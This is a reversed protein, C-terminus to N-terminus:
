KRRRRLLALAGLGGLLTTSTEPVATVTFVRDGVVDISPDGTANGTWFGQNGGLNELFVGMAEGGAYSSTSNGAWVFAPATSDLYFAYTTNDALTLNASSFDFSVTTPGTTNGLTVSASALATAGVNWYNANPSAGTNTAYLYATVTSTFTDGVTGVTIESLINSAGLSGTSFSQALYYQNYDGTHTQVTHSSTNYGWNTLENVNSGNSATNQAVVTAANAHSALVLATAFLSIMKPKMKTIPPLESKTVPQM